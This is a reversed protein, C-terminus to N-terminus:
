NKRVERLQSNGHGTPCMRIIEISKAQTKKRSVEQHMLCNAYILPNTPHNAIQAPSISHAHGQGFSEIAQIHNVPLFCVEKRPAREKKPYLGQNKGLNKVQHSEELKQMSKRKTKLGNLSRIDDKCEYIKDKCEHERKRKKERKKELYPQLLPKPQKM